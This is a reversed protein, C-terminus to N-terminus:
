ASAKGKAAVRSLVAQAARYEDATPMPYPDTPSPVYRTNATEILMAQVRIVTSTRIWTNPLFSPHDVVRLLARDGVRPLRPADSYRYTPKFEHSKM